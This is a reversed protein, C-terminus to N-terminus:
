QNYYISTMDMACCPFFASNPVSITVSKQEPFRL